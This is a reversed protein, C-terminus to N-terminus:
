RGVAWARLYYSLSIISHDGFAHCRRRIFIIDKGMRFVQKIGQVPLPRLPTRQHEHSMRKPATSWM